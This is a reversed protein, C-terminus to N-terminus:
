WDILHEPSVDSFPCVKIHDLKSKMKTNEDRRQEIMMVVTQVFEQDLTIQTTGRRATDQLADQLRKMVAALQDLKASRGAVSEPVTVTFQPSPELLGVDTISIIANPDLRARQDDGSPPDRSKESKESSSRSSTTTSTNRVSRQRQLLDSKSANAAGPQDLLLFSDDHGQSSPASITTVSSNDGASFNFTTTPTAASAPSSRVRENSATGGDPNLSPVSSGADPRSEADQNM